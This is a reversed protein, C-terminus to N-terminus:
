SIEEVWAAINEPPVDDQMNHAPAMVYGGSRGLVDILTRIERRVEDPTATPLFEQVDVGGWFVLRDGFAAKLRAPEMDCASTQLPNIIDVGCAIIDDLLAFISGCSHHWYPCNALQRTRAIRERFSPAVLTRFSEPSILPGTQMGFDDGSTTQDIYPGIASYYQSIVALQIRLIRDFFAHVFDTDGALRMLFDDYGCMWCGLELIGFVPHEGIVVYRGGDRLAKAQQQWAALLSDDIRPEPWPFANLDDVTAGALPCGTIQWQGGVLEHRIGWCNVSATESIRRGLTGPLEVIGGVGRFDTGAWQLIREDVGSNTPLPEGIFGLFERLSAQCRPSMSTLTTAGIDLPPRDPQQHNLAALFRERSTM